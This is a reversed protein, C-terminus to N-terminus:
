FPRPAVQGGNFDIYPWYWGFKKLKKLDPKIGETFFKYLAEVEVLEVKSFGECWNSPIFNVFRRTEALYVHSLIQSKLKFHEETLKVQYDPYCNYAISWIPLKGKFCKHVAYSVDQHHPHGYEGLIGHTFVEEIDTLKCLDQCIAHYDLRQEYIDPHSLIKFDKVGLMKMASQFQNARLDGHGDANGDTICIVKFLDPNRSQILGSFFISEDDPHAVVILLKKLM